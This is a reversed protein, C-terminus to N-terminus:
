KRWNFALLEASSSPTLNITGADLDEIELNGSRAFSTERAKLLTTLERKMAESILYRDAPDFGEFVVENIHLDVSSNQRSFSRPGAAVATPVPERVPESTSLSEGADQESSKM